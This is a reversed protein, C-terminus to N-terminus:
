EETSLLNRMYTRVYIIGGYVKVVELVVVGIGNYTVTEDRM